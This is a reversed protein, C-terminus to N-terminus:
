GKRDEKRQTLCVAWGAIAVWCIGMGKWDVNTGNRVSTVIELVTFIAAIAVM